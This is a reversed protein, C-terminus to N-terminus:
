LRYMMKCPFNPLWAFCRQVLARQVLEVGHGPQPPTPSPTPIHRFGDSMWQFRLISIRVISSVPQLAVHPNGAISPQLFWLSPFPQKATLVWSLDNIYNPPRDDRYISFCSHPEWIKEVINSADSTSTFRRTVLIDKYTKETQCIFSSDQCGQAVYQQPESRRPCPHSRTSNWCWPSCANPARPHRSAPQHSPLSFFKDGKPGKTISITSFSNGFSILASWLQKTWSKSLVVCGSASWKHNKVNAGVEVEFHVEGFRSTSFMVLEARCNAKLNSQMLLAVQRFGIPNAIAAITHMTPFGGLM